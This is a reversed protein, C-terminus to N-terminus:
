EQAQMARGERLSKRLIFMAGLSYLISYSLVFWGAVGLAIALPTLPLVLSSGFVLNRGIQYALQYLTRRGSRPSVSKGMADGWLLVAKHFFAMSLLACAGALGGALTVLEPSIGNPSGTRAAHWAVAPMLFGYVVYAGIADLYEGFKTGKGSLRALSGDVCDLVLWGSLLIGGLVAILKSGIAIMLLAALLLVLSILTVTNASVGLNALVWTAPFSLPRIVYALWLESRESQRKSSTYTGLVAEYTVRSRVGSHVEM